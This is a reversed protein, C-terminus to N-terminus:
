QNQYLLHYINVFFIVKKNPVPFLLNYEQTFFITGFPRYRIECITYVQRIDQTSVYINKYCTWTHPKVSKVDDKACKFYSTANSKM